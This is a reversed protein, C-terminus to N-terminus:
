QLAFITLEDLTRRGNRLDTKASEVDQLTLLGKFEIAAQFGLRTGATALAANLQTM